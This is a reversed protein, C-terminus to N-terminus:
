RNIKKKIYEYYGEPELDQPFLHALAQHCEEPNVECAKKLYDLFEGYYKLEYCCLAMYAYGRPAEDDQHEKVKECYTFYKKFLTYAAEVYHNDYFSLIIHLWTDCEDDSQSIATRFYAEAEATKGAALMVHGKVIEMQVHDCDIDKTKNLVRIAEDCQGNESYAFAM